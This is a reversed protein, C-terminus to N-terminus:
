LNERLTASSWPWSNPGTGGHSWSCVTALARHQGPTKSLALLLHSFNPGQVVHSPSKSQGHWRASGSWVLGSLRGNAFSNM